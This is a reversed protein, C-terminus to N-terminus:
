VTAKITFNATEAIELLIRCNAILKYDSSINPDFDFFDDMFFAYCSSIATM